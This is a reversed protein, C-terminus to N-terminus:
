NLYICVFDGYQITVYYIKDNYEVEKSDQPHPTGTIVAIFLGRRSKVGLAKKVIELQEKETM